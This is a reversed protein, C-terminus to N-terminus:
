LIVGLETYTLDPIPATSVAPVEVPTAKFEQPIEIPTVPKPDDLVVTFGANSRTIWQAGILRDVLDRHGEGEFISQLPGFLPFVANELSERDTFIKGKIPSLAQQVRVKNM